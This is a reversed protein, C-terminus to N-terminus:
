NLAAGFDPPPIIFLDAGHKLAAAEQNQGTNGRAAELAAPTRRGIRRPSGINIRDIREQQRIRRQTMGTVILNVQNCACRNRANRPFRADARRVLICGTERLDHRVIALAFINRHNQLRAELEVFRVVQQVGAFHLLKYLQVHETRTGARLRSFQEFLRFIKEIQGINKKLWLRVSARVAM